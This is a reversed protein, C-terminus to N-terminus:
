KGSSGFGKDGRDTDDLEDVVVIDDSYIVTVIGQAIKYGKKIEVSEDSTNFICIKIDGRYNEDIVGALVDLGKKVSLGSKNAIRLYLHKKEGENLKPLAVSIGTSFTERTKPQIIKNEDDSFFDYGADTDHAKEPVKATETLKKIRIM